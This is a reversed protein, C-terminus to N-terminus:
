EYLSKLRAVEVPGLFLRGGEAVIPMRREIAGNAGRRSPLALLALKLMPAAEGDIARLRTLHDVLGSLDQWWAELRGEPRGLEDLGLEGTGSLAVPPWRLDLSEIELRTTESTPISITDSVVEAGVGTVRGEIKLIHLRKELPAVAHESFDLSDFSLTFGLGGRDGAPSEAEVLFSLEAGHGELIEHAGRILKYDRLWGRGSRPSGDPSLIVTMDSDKSVLRQRSGAAGTTVVIEQSGRTSLELRGPRFLGTELTVASAKWRWGGPAAIRPARLLAVLATPFGHLEPAAHGIEFGEAARARRWNELGDQFRAAAWQWYLWVGFGSLSIFVAAVIFKRM